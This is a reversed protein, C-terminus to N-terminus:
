SRSEVLGAGTIPKVEAVIYHDSARCSAKHPLTGACSLGRKAGARFRNPPQLGPAASHINHPATSRVTLSEELHRLGSSSSLLVTFAVLWFLGVPGDRYCLKDIECRSQFAIVAAAPSEVVALLGDV